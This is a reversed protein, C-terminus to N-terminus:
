AVKTWATRLPRRFLSRLSSPSAVARRYRPRTQLSPNAATLPRVPDGAAGFATGMSYDGADLVLVPGRAERAARRRKILGGLRAYGGRTADDNLTVPAHDSSPGMGVFASHMDNTHLVIFTKKTRGEKAAAPATGTLITAAVAASAALVERRAPAEGL